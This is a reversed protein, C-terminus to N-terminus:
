RFSCQDPIGGTARDSHNGIGKGPVIGPGAPYITDCIIFATETDLQEADPITNQPLTVQAEQVKPLRIIGSATVATGPTSVNVSDTLVDGFPILKKGRDLQSHICALIEYRLHWEEDPM